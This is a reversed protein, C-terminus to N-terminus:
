LNPAPESVYLVIHTAEDKPAPTSTVPSSTAIYSKPGAFCFRLMADPESHFSLSPSPPRDAFAAPDLDPDKGKSARSRAEESELTPLRIVSENDRLPKQPTPNLDILNSDQDQSESIAIEEAETRASVAASEGPVPTVDQAQILRHVAAEVGDWFRYAPLIYASHSSPSGVIIHGIINGASTTVMSGSCGRELPEDLRVTWVEQFGKTRPLRIFSPTGALTGGVESGLSITVRIKTVQPKNSIQSRVFELKPVFRPAGIAMRNIEVLAYDLGKGKDDTGLFVSKGVDVLQESQQESIGTNTVVSSFVHAATTLFYRGNAWFSIGARAKRLEGDTGKVFLTWGCFMSLSQVAQRAVFVSSVRWGALAPTSQLEPSGDSLFQLEDVRNFDPARDCDDIRFDPYRDLIRSEEIIARVAKRATKTGDHVLLTPKATSESPGIMFIGLGFIGDDSDEWDSLVAEIERSLKETFTDCVSGVAQWCKKGTSGMLCYFEGVFENRAEAESEPEKLKALVHPVKPIRDRLDRLALMTDM